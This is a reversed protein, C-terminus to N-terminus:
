DGRGVVVENDDARIAIPASIKSSRTTKLMLTFFVIIISSSQTSHWSTKSLNMPNKSKSLFRLIPGLSISQKIGGGVGENNNAELAIPASM